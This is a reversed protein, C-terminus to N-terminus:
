YPPEDPDLSENLDLHLQYYEEEAPTLHSIEAIVPMDIGRQTVLSWYAQGIATLMHDFRELEEMTLLFVRQKKLPTQM